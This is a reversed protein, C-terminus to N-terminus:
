GAEDALHMSSTSLHESLAVTIERLERVDKRAGCAAAAASAALGLWDRRRM